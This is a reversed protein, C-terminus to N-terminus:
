IDTWNEPFGLMEFVFLTNLQSIKETNGRNIWGGLDSGNWNESPRAPTCDSKLPTPLMGMVLYNELYMARKMGGYIEKRKLTKEEDTKRSQAMPTPLLGYFSVADLISNPREEGAKRSMMTKAGTAKLKEVRDPHDRQVSTVTPLLGFGTGETPLTKVALQFYMRGYKTGRLKWTLRCRRSFWGEMGLLLAPFTKEWLGDRNFRGFQELCKLGSTVTMKRELDRERRVTHSALSDEQLSTSRDETFLSIQKQSTM